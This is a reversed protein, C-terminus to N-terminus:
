LATLHETIENPAHYLTSNNFNLSDKDEFSLETPDRSLPIYHCYKNLCIM